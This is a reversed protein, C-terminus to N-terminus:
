GLGVRGSTGGLKPDNRGGSKGSGGEMKLEGDRIGARYFTVWSGSFSM